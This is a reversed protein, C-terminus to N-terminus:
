ANKRDITKCAPAPAAHSQKTRGNQMFLCVGGESDKSEETTNSAMHCVGGRCALMCANHAAHSQKTRGNQMFLCVGGESDKSEETTNSAM